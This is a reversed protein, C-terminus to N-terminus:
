RRPVWFTVTRGAVDGDTGAVVYRRELARLPGPLYGLRFDAAILPIQGAEIVSVLREVIAREPQRGAAARMGLVTWDAYDYEMRRGALVAYYPPALVDSGAPGVRQLQLLVVHPDVGTHGLRTRVSQAAPWVAVICAMAPLAVRSGSRSVLEVIGAAALAALLPEAPRAVGAFTGQHVALVPLLSAAMAFPTLVQGTMTHRVRWWGFAGLLLVPGELALVQWFALAAGGILLPSELEGLLGNLAAPGAVAGAAAAVTACGLALTGLYATALDRRRTWWAVLLPAVAFPVFTLKIALGLAGLTGAIFAWRVGRGARCQAANLTALAIAVALPALLTNGDLVQPLGAGLPLVAAFVIAIGGAYRHRSLHQALAGALLAGALYAGLALLRPLIVDPQLRWLLSLVVPLLPPQTSTAGSYLPAGAALRSGLYLYYGESYELYSRDLVAIACLASLGAILWGCSRALGAAWAALLLAVGALPVLGRWATLGLLQGWNNTVAGSLARPWLADTLPVAVESDPLTGTAVAALSILVSTAVLVWALRPWRAAAPLAVLAVFPLAPVLHRPGWSAGGDWLYYGSNVALLAGFALLGVHGAGRWNSRLAIAAGPLALLTWPAHILLGRHPGLLLALAVSLRPWGVGLVGSAQGAVYESGPALLAYGTTLPGGFAAWHYVGLGVLPLVSGALLAIAARRHAALRWVGWGAIAAAPLITPYEITVALGLLLGALAARQMGHSSAAWLLAFASLLCIAAPVHGFASTAFPLM